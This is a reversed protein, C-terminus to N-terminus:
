FAPSADPASLLTFLYSVIPCAPISIMEGLQLKELPSPFLGLTKCSRSFYAASVGAWATRCGSTPDAQAGFTPM